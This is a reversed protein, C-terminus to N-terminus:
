FLVNNITKYCYKNEKGAPTLTGSGTVQAAALGPQGYAAALAPNTLGLQMAAAASFPSGLMGANAVGHGGGHGAAAAAAQQMTQQVAM